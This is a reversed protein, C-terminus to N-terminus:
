KNNKKLLGNFIFVPVQHMRNSIERHINETDKVDVSVISRRGMSVRNSEFEAITSPRRGQSAEKDVHGLFRTDSRKRVHNLDLKAQETISLDEEPTEIGVAPAIENLSQEVTTAVISVEKSALEVTSQESAHADSTMTEDSGQVEGAEKIVL